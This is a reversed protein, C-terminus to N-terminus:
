FIYYSFIFKIKLQKMFLHSKRRSEIIAKKDGRGYTLILFVKASSIILIFKM